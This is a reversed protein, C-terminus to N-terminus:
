LLIRNGDKSSVYRKMEWGFARGWIRGRWQAGADLLTVELEEEGTGCPVTLLEKLRPAVPNPCM